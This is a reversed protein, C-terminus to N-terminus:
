ATALVVTCTFSVGTNEMVMVYHRGFDFICMQGELKTSLHALVPEARIGTDEDRCYRGNRVGCM